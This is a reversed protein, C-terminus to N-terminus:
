DSGREQRPKKRQDNGCCIAARDRSIPGPQARASLNALALTTSM